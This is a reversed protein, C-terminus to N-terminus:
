DNIAETKNKLLKLLFKYTLKHARIKEKKYEKDFELKQTLKELEERARGRPTYDTM